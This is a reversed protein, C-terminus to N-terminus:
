LSGPPGELPAEGRTLADGVADAIASPIREREEPDFRFEDAWIRPREGPKVFYAQLRLRRAEREVSGALVYDAGLADAVGAAGGELQRHELTASHAVIRIEDSASLREILARTVDAAILELEDDGDLNDFPVVAVLPRVVVTAPKLRVVPGAFYAFSALALAFVFLGSVVFKGSNGMVKVSQAKPAM